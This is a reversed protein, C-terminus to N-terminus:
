QVIGCAMQTLKFPSEMLRKKVEQDMSLLWLFINLKIYYKM